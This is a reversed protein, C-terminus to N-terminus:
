FEQGWACRSEVLFPLLSQSVCLHQVRPPIKTGLYASLAEDGELQAALRGAGYMGLRRTCLSRMATQWWASRVRAFGDLNWAYNPKNRREGNLPVYLFDDATRTGTVYDRFEPWCEDLVFAVGPRESVTGSPSHHFCATIGCDLCNNIHRKGSNRLVFLSPSSTSRLASSREEQAWFRIILERANLRAEIYVPCDPQFRLDVYNGFVTADRGEEAASGPIVQSHPHREVIEFGTKLFCDYLGNSLQCLGGGVAPILCGERLERGRAYGKRRTARGIQKWFSFTVGSEVVVGNLERVACRLNQIKGSELAREGPSTASRLPTCSEAILSTFGNRSGKPMKRINSSFDSYSRHLQLLKAKASFIAGSLLTPRLLDAEERM